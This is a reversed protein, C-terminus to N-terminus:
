QVVLPTKTSGSGDSQFMQNAPLDEETPDLNTSVHLGHIIPDIGSVSVNAEQSFFVTATELLPLPKVLEQFLEWQETHFDLARDQRKM